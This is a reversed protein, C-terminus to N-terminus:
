PKDKKSMRELVGNCKDLLDKPEQGSTEFQKKLKAEAAIYKLKIEQPVVFENKSEIYVSRNREFILEAIQIDGSNTKGFDTVRKRLEEVQDFAKRQCLESYSSLVLNNGWTVMSKYQYSGTAEDIMDRYDADSLGGDSNMILKAVPSANEVQGKVKALFYTDIKASLEQDKAYDRPEDSFLRAVDDQGNELAYDALSSGDIQVNSPVSKDVLFGVLEYTSGNTVALQLANYGDEDQAQPSLGHDYLVSMMKTDNTSSIVKSMLTALEDPKWSSKLLIELMDAREYSILYDIPREAEEVNLFPDAGQNLAVSFLPQNDEYIAQHLATWGYDSVANIDSGRAVLEPLNEVTLAEADIHEALAKEGYSNPIQTSFALAVALVIALSGAVKLKQWASGVVNRTSLTTVVPPNTIRKYFSYASFLLWLGGVIITVWRLKNWYMASVGVGFLFALLSPFAAALASQQVEKKKFKSPLQAELTSLFENKSPQDKFDLSLTELDKKTKYEVDIEEDTTRAAVYELQSFSIVIFNDTGFMVSYENQSQLKETVASVEDQECSGIVISGDTLVVVNNSSSESNIWYEM